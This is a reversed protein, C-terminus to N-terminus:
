GSPHTSRQLLDSPITEPSEELCRQYYVSKQLLGSTDQSLQLSDRKRQRVHLMNGHQCACKVAPCLLNLIGVAIILLICLCAPIKCVRPLLETQAPLQLNDAGQM